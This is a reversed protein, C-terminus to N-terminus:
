TNIETIEYRDYSFNATSNLTTDGERHSLTVEGLNNLWIEKFNVTLIHSEFNDTIKLNADIKFERRLKIYNDKNNNVLTMWKFLLIWNEFMSDVLFHVFWPEFVIEGSFTKGTGGQWGLNLEPLSIAPIVTSHINLVLPNKDNISSEVPIQPFILEYSHPSAKNLNTRFSM